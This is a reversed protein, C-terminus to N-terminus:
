NWPVVSAGRRSNESAMGRRAAPRISAGKGRDAAEEDDGGRCTLRRTRIPLRPRLLSMRRKFAWFVLSPGSRIHGVMVRLRRSGLVLESCRRRYHDTGFDAGFAHTRERDALRLWSRLSQLVEARTARRWTLFTSLRKVIQSM